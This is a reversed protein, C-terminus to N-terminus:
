QRIGSLRWVSMFRASRATPLSAVGVTNDLHGPPGVAPVTLAIRM